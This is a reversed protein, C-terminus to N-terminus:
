ENNQISTSFLKRKKIRPKKAIVTDCQEGRADHAQLMEWYVRLLTMKRNSATLVTHAM